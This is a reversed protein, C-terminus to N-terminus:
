LIGLLGALHAYAVDYATSTTLKAHQEQEAAPLTTLTARRETERQECVATLEAFDLFRFRKGPGAPYPFAPLMRANGVLRTLRERFGGKAYWAAFPDARRHRRKWARVDAELHRLEPELEKLDAFRPCARCAATPM